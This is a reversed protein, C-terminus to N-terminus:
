GAHKRGFGDAAVVRPLGSWDDLCVVELFEERCWKCLIEAEGDGAELLLSGGAKLRGPLGQIIRRYIDLGDKGGDLALVPEKGVEKQLAPLDGSPIYPPNSVIVDFEGAPLAAYLDSEFFRVQAGLAEANKRAVELADSSIDAAFVQCDPSELAMTVALAGSGTGIDLARMGAKLRKVAEECLIETDGRPILVRSDVQFPRGYFWAEGLIYQLPERAERRRLKDELSAEEEQTLTKQPATLVAMLRDQGAEGALLLQADVEADPVGADALRQAAQKLWENHKL